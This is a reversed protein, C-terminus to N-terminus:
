TVSVIDLYYISPVITNITGLKGNAVNSSVDVDTSIHTMVVRLVNVKFHRARIDGMLLLFLCPPLLLLLFLLLLLLSEQSWIESAEAGKSHKTWLLVDLFLQKFYSVRSEWRVQWLGRHDERQWTWKRAEGQEVQWCSDKCSVVRKKKFCETWKAKRSIKRM